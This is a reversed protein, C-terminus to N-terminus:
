WRRVLSTLLEFLEFPNNRCYVDNKKSKDNPFISYLLARWGFSYSVPVEWAAFIARIAIGLPIGLAWSKAVVVVAKSGSENRSLEGVAIWILLGCIVLGLCAFTVLFERQLNRSSGVKEDSYNESLLVGFVVMNALPWVLTGSSVGDGEGYVLYSVASPGFLMATAYFFCILRVRKQGLQKISGWNMMQREYSGLFGSMFPLLMKQQTSEISDEIAPQLEADDASYKATSPPELSFFYLARILVAM